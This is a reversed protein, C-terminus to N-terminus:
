LARAPIVRRRCQIPWLRYYPLRTDTPTWQISVLFNKPEYRAVGEQDRSKKGIRRSKGRGVTREPFTMLLVCREVDEPRAWPPAPYIGGVSVQPKRVPNGRLHLGETKGVDQKKKKESSKNNKKDEDIRSNWSRLGEPWCLFRTISREAGSDVLYDEM